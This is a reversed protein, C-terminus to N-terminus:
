RFTRSSTFDVTQTVMPTEVSEGTGLLYVPGQERGPALNAPLRPRARGLGPDVARLWRSGSPVAIAPVPLRDDAVEARGRRHDADQLRAPEQGGM